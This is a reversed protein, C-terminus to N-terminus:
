TNLQVTEQLCADQIKEYERSLSMYMRVDCSESARISFAATESYV